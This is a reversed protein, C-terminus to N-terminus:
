KDVPGLLITAYEELTTGADLKGHLKAKALNGRKDWAARHGHPIEETAALQNKRVFVVTNEDFVSARHGIMEEKLVISHPGYAIPGADHLSLAAFVIKEHYGPFLMADVVHRQRDAENDEPLRAKGQVQGYFTAYLANPSSLLEQLRGLPRCIVAKSGSVAYGFDDLVHKCGRANTEDEADSVRKKLAEVEPKAAAARVNPTDLAIGCAPCKDASPPIPDPNSCSPCHYPAITM